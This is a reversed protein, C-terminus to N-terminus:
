QEKIIASGRLKLLYDSLAAKEAETVRVAWVAKPEGEGKPRGAGKRAGGHGGTKKGTSPSIKVEEAEPTPQYEEPTIEEYVDLNSGNKRQDKEVERGISALRELEALEAEQLAVEEYFGKSLSSRRKKPDAIRRLGDEVAKQMDREIRKVTRTLNEGRYEYCADEGEAKAADEAEIKARVRRRTAEDAIEAFDGLRADIRAEMDLKVAM